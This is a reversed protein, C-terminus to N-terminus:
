EGQNGKVLSEIVDSFKIDAHYLESLTEHINKIRDITSVSSGAQSWLDNVHQKIFVKCTDMYDVIFLEYIASSLVALEDINGDDMAITLGYCKSFVNIVDKYLQTRLISIYDLAENNDKFM